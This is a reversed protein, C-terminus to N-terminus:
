LFNCHGSTFYGNLNTVSFHLEFSEGGGFTRKFLVMYTFTPPLIFYKGEVQFCIVTRISVMCTMALYVVGSKIFWQSFLAHTINKDRNKKKLFVRRLALNSYYSTGVKLLCKNLYVSNIIYGQSVKIKGLSPLFFAYKMNWVGNHISIFFYSYHLLNYM